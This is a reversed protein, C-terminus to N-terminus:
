RAQAPAKLRFSPLQRPEPLPTAPKNAAKELLIAAENMGNALAQKLFIVAQEVNQETGHGELLRRGAELMSRPEYRLAAQRYWFFAAQHDQATGQSKEFIM